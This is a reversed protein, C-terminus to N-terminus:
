EKLMSWSWITIAKLRGFDFVSIINPHNLRALTRAELAFREAFHPDTERRPALIKLAVLRDLSKQRAKYVAGMGGQGIRELFDYQPFRQALEALSPPVFPPPASTLPTNEVAGTATGLGVKMLCAPCLGGPTDAALPKGCSQCQNQVNM